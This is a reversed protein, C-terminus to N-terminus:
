LALANKLTILANAINCAAQSYRMADSSDHSEGAKKILNEIQKSVIENM